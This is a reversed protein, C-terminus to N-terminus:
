KKNEMASLEEEITKKEDELDKIEQKLIEKRESEPMSQYKKWVWGCMMRGYGRGLGLGSGHGAGCSGMGRGTKPGVGRPGTKDMNPMIIM